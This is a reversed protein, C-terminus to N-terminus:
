FLDVLDPYLARLRAAEAPVDGLLVFDAFEFGPAV